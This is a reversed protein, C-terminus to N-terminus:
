LEMLNRFVSNVGKFCNKRTYYGLERRFVPNGKEFYTFYYLNEPIEKRTISSIVIFKNDVTDLHNAIVFTKFKELANMCEQPTEFENASVGLPYSNSNSPFIKFVYKGNDLRVICDEKKM